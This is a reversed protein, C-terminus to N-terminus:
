SASVEPIANLAETIDRHADTQLGVPLAYIKGALANLPDRRQEAVLKGIINFIEDFAEMRKELPLTPMRDILPTLNRCIAASAEIKAEPPLGDLQDALEALPAARHETRIKEIVYIVDELAELCGEPPLTSMRGILPVLSRGIAASADIRAHEPLQDLQEALDALATARQDVTVENTEDLIKYFRPVRNEDEPLSRLGWALTGLLRARQEVLSEKIAKFIKDFAALRAEGQPLWNIGAVLGVIVRAQRNKPMESMLAFIREFYRVSMTQLRHLERALAELPAARQGTREDAPIDTIAALIDDFGQSAAVEGPPLVVLGRALAALPRGRHEINLGTQATGATGAIAELLRRFLATRAPGTGFNFPWAVQGLRDGLATLLVARLESSLPSAPSNRDFNVDALVDTLLQDLVPLTQAGGIKVKLADRLAAPAHIARQRRSTQSLARRGAIAGEGKLADGVMKQLEVPLDDYRFGTAMATWIVADPTLPNDSAM